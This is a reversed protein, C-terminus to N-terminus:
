DVIHELEKERRFMIWGAIGASLTVFAVLITALANIEPTVGFKLTSYIYMPLTTTDPGSVFSAVVLDDLSLTFSILWGAILAPSIMPLTIVFFVKLPHAGLDQAAEEYRSYEDSLRTRMIVTVYAFAITTHAIAITVFGRNEPWGIAQQMFVFLLLLSLGTIVEPMILPSVILINFLRRGRFQKIRALTFASLTGLVVALTASVFAIRLSLWASGLLEQNQFLSVYWRFSFGEWITVLRSDNFSYVVLALIPAYLFGYGLLLILLYLPRKRIM